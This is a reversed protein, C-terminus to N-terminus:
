EVTFLTQEGGPEDSEFRLGLPAMMAPCEPDGSFAMCGPLTDSQNDPIKEVDVGALIQAADVRVVGRDPDFGDLRIPALNDHACTFGDAVSGVEGTYAGPATHWANQAGLQIASGALAQHVACLYPFPPAVLVDVQDHDAPVAKALEGALAQASRLTTNMKWNGAVLPRVAGESETM